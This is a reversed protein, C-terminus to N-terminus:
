SACRASACSPRNRCTASRWRAAWAWRRPTSSRPWPTPPRARSRFPSWSREPNPVSARYRYESAIEVSCPVGALQEIWYRAVLGAHFSTGCALILVSRVGSLMEPAAVGFLNPSVAQIRRRDNWRRPWPRRSSSSKRRCTIRTSAWSSTTPPSRAKTCRATEPSMATGGAGVIRIVCRPATRRIDGDELYIMRRTVQLLASADSAAYNGDEGLGLLLPAGHRAVVM